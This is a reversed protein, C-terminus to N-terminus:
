GISKKKLCVDKVLVNAFNNTCKFENLVFIKMLRELLTRNRKVFNKFERILLLLHETDEKFVKLVYM